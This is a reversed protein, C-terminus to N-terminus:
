QRNHALHYGLFSLHMIQVAWSTPPYLYNNLSLFSYKPIPKCSKFFQLPTFLSYNNEHLLIDGKPDVFNRNKKLEGLFSSFFSENRNNDRHRYPVTNGVVGRGCIEVWKKIFQRFSKFFFYFHFIIDISVKKWFTSLPFLRKGVNLNRSLVLDFFHRWYFPCFTKLLSQEFMLNLSEM